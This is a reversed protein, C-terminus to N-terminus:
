SHTSWNIDFFTNIGDNIAVTLRLPIWFLFPNDGFILPNTLSLFDPFQNSREVIIRGGPFHLSRDPANINEFNGHLKSYDIFSRGAGPLEEITDVAIRNSGAPTGQITSPDITSQAVGDMPVNFEQIVRKAEGELQIWNFNGGAGDYRLGASDPTDNTRLGDASSLPGPPIPNGGTFDVILSDNDNSGNIIIQTLDSFPISQSPNGDISLQVNDGIRELKFQDAQGNNIGNGGTSSADIVLVGDSGTPSSPQSLGVGAVLCSLLLLGRITPCATQLTEGCDGDKPHSGTVALWCMPLFGAITGLSLVRSVIIRHFYLVRPPVRSGM